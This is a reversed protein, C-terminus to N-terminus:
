LTEVKQKGSGDTRKSSKLEIEGSLLKPLLADRIEGLTKSEKLSESKKLLASEVIKSYETRLEKSPMSVDMEAVAQPQARQRSGTSGTVRQIIGDQFPKSTILGYIFARHDSTLPLFQMFETSCIAVEEDMVSPLWTRSLRPNLKSSLVATPKVKYKNSKINQGEELAPFEGEDFAPISYHEWVKEPHVYPKVSTTDLRALESFSRVGWSKPILGLESEVLEDPFPGATAALQELTEAPLQDLSAESKGNITCMAAREPDLGQEKARIKAKVPDFDVFWSKFIVQTIQELTQNIQRNLEIKDDLTALFDGIIKRDEKEPFEFEFTALAQWSVRQRGSTGEMRSTSYNRFGLMRALYYVYNENYEPEKASMVIFETSGHAIEKSGLGRVQVTKGNELCPTIRAFLTDGNKFKSGGGSYVKEGIVSIDRANIPLAAMDVFPAVTGRKLTRKPNFDVLDTILQKAM